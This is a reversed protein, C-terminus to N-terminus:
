RSDRLISFTLQLVQSQGPAQTINHLVADGLVLAQMTDIQQQPDQNSRAAKLQKVRHGM